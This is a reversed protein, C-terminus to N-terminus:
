INFWYTLKLNISRFRPLISNSAYYNDNYVLYLDSLPAFRFQLRSNIGLDESQSSYQIYTTWFTKKSFTFEFKPSILWIDKSSYPSPLKISDFNFKLSTNFIPQRRFALENYFSFKNGNFFGGYSVSSDINFINRSSSKYSFIYDVYDYFNNKPLPKGNLSRTPDFDYYLYTKSQRRQFSLRSTSLYNLQIQSYHINGEYKNELETRFVWAAYHSLEIEQIKPNNPYIRFRYNPEFKYMGYRRYYGLDSRFDDGVYASYFMILSKNTNRTIMIGSSINQKNNIESPRFSKHVFAKGFWKGDGSALNYEGGLVRNYKEKNNLFSYEKVSERNLFFFSFNSGNFVNKRFTLLTNNNQAIENEIDDDTLINLLGIRTKDNIKGSLKIGSIIKNEILEGDKNSSIGIRRSFFPQADRSTGFDSFLDSNQTFFQRKEPLKIEWQSTNVIRDDVEVQSFDPNLTFDLNLSNAIPIKIDVGAQNRKVINNHIFEKGNLVNIYPILVFPKKQKGLPEEFILNGMFALNGISQNQPVKSWVSHEQGNTDSRYMNFRWKKSNNGYYLQDLPIKLETLFFDNYLKSEVYWIADWSKNRDLRPDRNGNSVLLDGKLGIHNTQFQFANTADSFTDFILQVYDASATEFDRKLSYVTFKNGSINSKILFYLNEDDYLAKFNTQNKAKISDSPRWQWYDSSGNVESWLKDEVGDIEIETNIYKIFYNQSFSYSLSFCIIFLILKNKL